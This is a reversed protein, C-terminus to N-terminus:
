RLTSRVERVIRVDLLTPGSEGLAWDLAPRLEGARSVRRGAVGMSEALEVFDIEPETLDMGTFVGRKVSEAGLALLGGKLVMYSTNNFVIFM